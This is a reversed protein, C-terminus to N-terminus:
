RHSRPNRTKRPFWSVIGWSRKRDLIFISLHCLTGVICGDIGFPRFLNWILCTVFGCVAGLFFTRRPAAIGRLAAALPVLLVPSWFSYAFLLISFVDPICLSLGIAALGTLVNVARLLRLGARDSLPHRPLVTDCVLSVTASNLFGDAASLIISVMAAMLIGRLGTPLIALILDPMASAATDTVKLARAALGIGATILFFPLSFLGSLVTGKATSAPDKGILLRQMYPPALAEGCMMSFFLSLFTPWTMHGLPSLLDPPLAATLQGVGGGATAALLLLVPMGIALLIFQLMDAVIVSGLGGFTTYLLVIGGGLLTGVTPSVGLLSHFVLGISEMQAGVIGASCLFAFVGALRRAAPGYAIGIVGGVTTAGTFRRIGPVLYRGILIMGIGFGFLTLATGIGSEFAAAANGSSYGGGIFSASLTAFIVFTGYRNDAATFDRVSHVQRGGRLGIAVLVLLYAAVIAIDWM